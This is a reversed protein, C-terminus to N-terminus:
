QVIIQDSLKVKARTHFRRWRELSKRVEKSVSDRMCESQISVIDQEITRCGRPPFFPLERYMDIWKSGLTQSLLTFVRDLTDDTQFV